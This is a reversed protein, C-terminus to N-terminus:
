FVQEANEPACVAYAMQEGYGDSPDVSAGAEEALGKDVLSWYLRSGDGGGLISSLAAAAYRLEDQATVSPMTMVLYHQRLDPIVVECTGSSRSVEVPGRTAGTRKWTGCKNSITEVMEDFQINGAM